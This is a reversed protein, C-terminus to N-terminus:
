SKLHVYLTKAIGLLFIYSFFWIAMLDYYHGHRLFSMGWVLIFIPIYKLKFKKEVALYLERTQTADMYIIDPDKYVCIWFLVIYYLQIIFLWILLISHLTPLLGILVVSGVVMFYIQARVHNTIKEIREDGKYAATAVGIGLIGNAIFLLLHKLTFSFYLYEAIKNFWPEWSVVYFASIAFLLAISYCILNQRGILNNKLLEMKYLKTTLHLYFKVYKFYKCVKKVVFPTFWQNDQGFM